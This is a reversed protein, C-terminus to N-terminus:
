EWVIYRMEAEILNQGDQIVVERDFPIILLAEETPEEGTELNYNEDEANFELHFNTTRILELQNQYEKEEFEQIKEWDLTGEPTAFGPIRTEETEHWNEPYGTTQALITTTRQAQNEILTERDMDDVITIGLSWMTMFLMVIFGLVVVSAMFDTTFIQGKRTKM